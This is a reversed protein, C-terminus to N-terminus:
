NMELYPVVICGETDLWVSYTYSGLKRFENSYLSWCEAEDDDDDDDDDPV